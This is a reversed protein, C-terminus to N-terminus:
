QNHAAANAERQRVEAPTNERVAAEAESEVLAGGDDATTVVIPRSPDRYTTWVPLPKVRGDGDPRIADALTQLEGNTLDHDEPLEYMGYSTNQVVEVIPVQFSRIFRELREREVVEPAYRSLPPEPIPDGQLLPASGSGSAAEPQDSGAGGNSGVGAGTSESTAPADASEASALADALSPTSQGQIPGGPAGPVTNAQAASDAETRPPTEPALDLPDRPTSPGTM